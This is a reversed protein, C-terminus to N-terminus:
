TMRLAAPAFFRTKFTSEEGSAEVEPKARREARIRSLIISRFYIAERFHSAVDLVTM